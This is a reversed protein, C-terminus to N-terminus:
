PSYFQLLQQELINNDKNLLRENSTSELYCVDYIYAWALRRIHTYIVTATAVAAYRFQLVIRSRM